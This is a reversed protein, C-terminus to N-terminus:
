FKVFRFLPIAPYVSIGMRGEGRNVCKRKVMKIAVYGANVNLLAFSILTFERTIRLAVVLPDYIVSSPLLPTFNCPRWRPTVRTSMASLRRKKRSVGICFLFLYVLSSPQHLHATCVYVPLFKLYCQFPTTYSRSSPKILPRM